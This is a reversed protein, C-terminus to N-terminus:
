CAPEHLSGCLRLRVRAYVFASARLHVCVSESCARARVCARRGHWHRSAKRRPGEDAKM